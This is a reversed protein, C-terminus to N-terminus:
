LFCDHHNIGVVEQSSLEGSDQVKRARELLAAYDPIIKELAQRTTEVQEESYDPFYDIRTLLMVSSANEIVLTNGKMRASGGDWVNAIVFAGTAEHLARFEKAKDSQALAM